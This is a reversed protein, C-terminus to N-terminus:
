KSGRLQGSMDPDSYAPPLTAENRERTHRRRQFFLLLYLIFAFLVVGGIVGGAIPGAYSRSPEAEAPALTPTSTADTPAPAQTVTVFVTHHDDDISAFTEVSLTSPAEADWTSSTFRPPRTPRGGTATALRTRLGQEQTNETDQDDSSM